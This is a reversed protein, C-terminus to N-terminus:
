ESVIPRTRTGAGTHTAARHSREVKCRPESCSVFYKCSTGVIGYKAPAFIVALSEMSEIVPKLGQVRASKLGIRVVRVYPGSM